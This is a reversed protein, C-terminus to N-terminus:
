LHFSPRCSPAPRFTRLLYNYSILFIQSGSFPTIGGLRRRSFGIQLELQESWLLSEPSASTRNRSKRRRLSRPTKGNFVDRHDWSDPLLRPQRSELTRSMAVMATVVLDPSPQGIRWILIFPNELEHHELSPLSCLSLLFCSHRLHHANILPSALNPTLSTKHELFRRRCWSVPWNDKRGQVINRFKKKQFWRFNPRFLYISTCMIIRMWHGLM